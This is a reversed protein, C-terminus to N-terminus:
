IEVPLLGDISYTKSGNEASIEWMNKEDITELFCSYGIPPHSLQVAKVVDLFRDGLFRVM